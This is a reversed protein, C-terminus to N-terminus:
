WALLQLRETAPLFAPKYWPFSKDPKTFSFRYKVFANFFNLQWKLCFNNEFTPRYAVLGIFRINVQPPIHKLHSDFNVSSNRSCQYWLCVQNTSIKLNILITGLTPLELDHLQQWKVSIIWIWTYVPCSCWCFIYMSRRPM